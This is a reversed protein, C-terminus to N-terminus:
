IAVKNAQYYIAKKKNDLVFADYVVRGEVLSGSYFMPEDHVKYESLRLPAVTASKHSVMFGFNEPLRSSPVKIVLLGDLNSIVGRIRMDEGIDTNLVIDKSQKMLLYTEPTVIIARDVEPVENDDLAANAKIIESYINDATLTVPTAVTGAGTVMKNYTYQDIEPIVKERIQRALATAAQVALATEQEDMTDIIFTFSRDKKLQMEQTTTDLDQVKGYRSIGTDKRRGYDNMEATSVKYVVVTDEYVWKYDQNTILPLKSENKFMEDVNGDFRTALQIAM